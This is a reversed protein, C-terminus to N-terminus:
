RALWWSLLLGAAAVVWALWARPRAWIVFVAAYYVFVNPPGAAVPRPAVAGAAVISDLLTTSLQIMAPTTVHALIPAPWSAALALGQLITVPLLFVVTAVPGVVSLQGFHHLQLPAIFVEVAASVSFAVAAGQAVRMSMRVMRPRAPSPPRVLAKPLRQVCLLLALTAAFSLQLGVSLIACPRGLMMLLLATNLAAIPKPPRVLWRAGLILLAMVWARTLSDIDGVMGVYLSLAVAIAGDRRRPAFHTAAVALVAIMTLHMGSLALLHAIGLNRVAHYAARDLMGREGLLLGVPLAAGAGLARALRTRAGRHMPWLVNRLLPCGSRGKTMVVDEFRVRAEGSVGRSALYEFSSRANEPLRARLSLSDGYAVDFVEARVAVQMPRGQIHTAFPFTTGYRGSQPFGCVWGDLRVLQNRSARASEIYVSCNGAAREVAALGVVGCTVVLALALWAHAARLLVARILSFSVLLVFLSVSRYVGAAIAACFLWVV